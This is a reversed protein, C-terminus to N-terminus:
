EKKEGEEKTEVKEKKSFLKQFFMKINTWFIKMSIVGGVFIAVLIQVIYAGTGADLYGYANQPFISCFIVFVFIARFFLTFFRM